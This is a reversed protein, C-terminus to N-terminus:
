PGVSMAVLYTPLPKTPAFRHILMSGSATTRAEPANAFVKASRPARITVTFPTKFGPEDFAPFVRRADIPEFQTWAYWDNGVKAHFLGEASDRFAATYDFRLTVKGAPLRSPLDLRAVGSEDVEVYRATRVVRGALVQVRSIRLEAGHLFIHQTPQTLVADIETHGSFRAAAPDVTLDLRYATPRVTDPLRGTPVRPPDALSAGAVGMLALALTALKLM